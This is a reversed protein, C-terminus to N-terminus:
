PVNIDPRLHWGAKKSRGVGVPNMKGKYMEVRLRKGVIKSRTLEEPRAKPVVCRRISIAANFDRNVFEM